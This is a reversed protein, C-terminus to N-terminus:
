SYVLRRHRPEGAFTLWKSVPRGNRRDMPVRVRGMAGGLYTAAYSSTWALCAAAFSTTGATSSELINPGFGGSGCQEMMVILARYPPLTALLTLNQSTIHQESDAIKAADRLQKLEVWLM